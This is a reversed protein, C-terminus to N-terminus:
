FFKISNVIDDIYNTFTMFFEPTASIQIQYIKDNHQVYMFQSITIDADAIFSYGITDDIVVPHTTEIMDYGEKQLGKQVFVAKEDLDMNKSDPSITVSTITYQSKIKTKNQTDTINLDTLSDPIIFDVSFRKEPSYYTDWQIAYINSAWASFGDSDSNGGGLIKLM